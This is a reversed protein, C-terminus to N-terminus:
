RSEPHQRHTHEIAEMGDDPLTIGETLKEWFGEGLEACIERQFAAIGFEM